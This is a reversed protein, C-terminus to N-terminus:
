CAAILSDIAAIRAAIERESQKEDVEGGPWGRILFLKGLLAM